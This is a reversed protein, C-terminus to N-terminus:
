CKSMEVFKSRKEFLTTDITDAALMRYIWVKKDQGYRRSRGIAQTECAQIWENSQHFLPNLFVVHNAVTLNAGAASEDGVNLLLVPAVSKGKGPTQFIDLSKSKQASSGKIELHAIGYYDLAEGVKEMLDDFQVFVLVKEDNPLVKEQIIRILSLLKAGFKGSTASATSERSLELDGFITTPVISKDHVVINCGKQLCKQNTSSRVICSLCGMHGCCSLIASNEVLYKRDSSVVTKNTLCTESMCNTIASHLIDFRNESLVIKDVGTFFRLSRIRGILEKQLRGAAHSQERIFHLVELLDFKNKGSTLSFKALESAFNNKTDEKAERDTKKSKKVGNEKLKTESKSEAKSPTKPLTKLDIDVLNKIKLVDDVINASKEPGILDEYAKSILTSALSGEDVSKSRHILVVLIAMAETDGVHNGSGVMMLWKDFHDVSESEKVRVSKCHEQYDSRGAATKRVLKVRNIQLWLDVVCELLQQSRTLVIERCTEAATLLKSPSKPKSEGGNKEGLDNDSVAEDEGEESNDEDTVGASDGEDLAFHSCRKMLAEEACSSSGLAKIMRKDRDGDMGSKTKIAKKSNMDLAQLHHELELYIAREAPPLEVKCFVQESFIEDIEAINQRVFQNLFIQALSHRRAHWETTHVERFAHFQEVSTAEKKRSKAKQGSFESEDDVGLHVGLFVAVSKIDNFDKVPPTGSLIWRNVSTMNIVAAHIRNALYTFEDVVLRNWNFLEFPPCKMNKYDKKVDANIFGWPDPVSAKGLRHTKALKADEEDEEDEEGIEGGVSERYKQGKLRKSQVISSKKSNAEEVASQDLAKEIDKVLTDILGNKLNEVQKKLCVLCEKYRANFYRGGAKANPPLKGHSAFIEFNTWYKESSFINSSAVVVDAKMIDRITFKNLNSVDTIVITKLSEGTFKNIESPWQKLLHGPVLVLTAKVSIKGVVNPLPQPNLVQQQKFYDIVGLTIATKGYGVEDAVVGGRISVLRSARGEARWGLYELSAESIEEETFARPNEEQSIMWGLSRLQEPRLPYKKFNPPQAVQPDNRNSTLELKQFTTLKSHATNNAGFTLRWSFQFDSNSEVTFPVTILRAAARHILSVFNLGVRFTGVASEETSEANLKLQCVFPNPRNKLANEYVGAQSPDEIAVFNKSNGKSNPIWLINPETPACKECPSSCHILSELSVDKSNMFTWDNVWQPMKIRESFWAVREFTHKGAKVLDVENWDKRGWVDEVFTGLPVRVQVLSVSARCLSLESEVSKLFADKQLVAFKAGAIPTNSPLSQISVSSGLDSWFGKVRCDVLQKGTISSPRWSPDLIAIPLRQEGFELRRSRSAFVFPDEEPLGCRTPDLFFFLEGFKEENSERKHLYEMATGCKGITRYTGDIGGFPLSIESENKVTWHSWVKTGQFKGELGLKAEWSDILAGKGTIAVKFDFNAPYFIAWSEEFFTDSSSDLQMQAIPQQLAERVALSTGKPTNVYIQWCPNKPDLSLVLRADRSTYFITWVEQRKLASYRFETCGTLAKSVIIAWSNFIDSNITKPSPNMAAAIENLKEFTIWNIYLRMPLADKLFVTFESPNARSKSLILNEVDYSHEPRGGCSLCSSHNCEICTQISDKSVGDRGECVCHRSALNARKLVEKLSQSNKVALDLNAHELMHSRTVHADLDVIVEVPGSLDEASMEAILKDKHAILGEIGVVLAALFAAGVVTSSMANGALDALQDESERTLLLQNVPIGQLSLAELGVLPGGRNTIYAIMTPTLCPSIGPNSSATNRDVNQSLNWVLTKYMVDLGTKALRLYNIDSLDLVRDTQTRGWDNWAFDPYNSMGGESWATLPRKNGLEENIRAFAHRSECRSWDTRGTKSGVDDKTKALDQRAAHIRPDDTALLYDEVPTSAKRAMGKLVDKWEDVMDESYGFLKERSLAILYVRTRTHPIYYLKTDTRTFTANYGIGDFHEVVTDWPAGCVNELIVIPPRHNKVWGLMGRFTEGSEGKAEIGQKKNNLSSYDVCSTGAILIDVNGPVSVTAGYATTATENCLQRVDRFLIPPKFNRDIYAQKFPEIECSFVHHFKLANPTGLKASLADSILKIALLPSETGSCMTALRLPPRGKALRQISDILKPVRAIMDAFMEPLKNIPELDALRENDEVDDDLKLKKTASARKKAPPKRKTITPKSATSPNSSSGGFFQTMSLQKMPTKSKVPKSETESESDRGANVIIEITGHQDNSSTGVEEDSDEMTEDDSKESPESSVETEESYDSTGEFSSSESVGKEFDSDDDIFRRKKIAYKRSLRRPTSKEDDSKVAEEPSSMKQASSSKAKSPTSVPTKRKSATSSEEKGSDSDEVDVAKSNKSGPVAVKNKIPTSSSECYRLVAVLSRLKMGGPGHYTPDPKGDPRTSLTKTWGAPLESQKFFDTIPKAAPTAADLKRQAPSRKAGANTKQTSSNTKSAAPSNKSSNRGSGSGSKKERM